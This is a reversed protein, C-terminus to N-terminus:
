FGGRVDSMQTWDRHNSRREIEKSQFKNVSCFDLNVERLYPSSRGLVVFASDPEWLRLCEQGEASEARELLAEDLRSKGSSFRSDNAFAADIDLRTELNMELCYGLSHRLNGGSSSLSLMLQAIQFFRAAQLLFNELLIDMLFQFDGRSEDFEDSGSSSFHGAIM